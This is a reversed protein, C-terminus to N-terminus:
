WPPKWENPDDIGDYGEATGQGSMFSQLIADFQKAREAKQEAAWNNDRARRDRKDKSVVTKAPVPFEDLWYASQTAGDAVKDSPAKALLSADQTEQRVHEPSRAEISLAAFRAEERIRAAEMEARAKMEAVEAHARDLLAARHAEFEMRARDMGKCYARAEIETKRLEASKVAQAARQEAMIEAHPRRRNRSGYRTHGSPAGVSDNYEDLLRTMAIKYAVKAAKCAVKKTQGDALADAFIRDAAVHGPHLARARMEPEVPLVFAHVHLNAEDTHRIIGVLTVPFKKRLFDIVRREWAEYDARMVPDSLVIAPTGKYSAIAVLLTNQDVRVARRHGRSTVIIAQSLREDHLAAIEAAHKGWVLDPMEVASIHQSAWNARGAEGLLFAVSPKRGKRTPQVAAETIRFFSPFM